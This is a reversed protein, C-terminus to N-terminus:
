LASGLYPEWQLLSLDFLVTTPNSLPNEKSKNSSTGAAEKSFPTARGGTLAPLEAQWALLPLTFTAVRPPSKQKRM